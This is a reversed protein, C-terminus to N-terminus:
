KSAKTHLKYHVRSDDMKGDVWRIRGRRFKRPEIHQLTGSPKSLYGDAKFVTLMKALRSKAPQRPTKASFFWDRINFKTKAM